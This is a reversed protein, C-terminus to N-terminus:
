RNTIGHKKMLRALVHRNALGLERWVKERVGKHRELCAQIQAASVEDGTDPQAPTLELEETLDLYSGTTGDAIRWLAQELERVNTVWTHRVLHCVLQPTLRPHGTPDEDWFFREALTPDETAMGRLLHRAILPIDELRGNLGPVALRLKLRALVDDKLQSPPRNTAGLLRFRSNRTRSEGLRQYEGEDLVRLLHTQAGHPLEGIEDLFLTGGNAQGVLGPREVM